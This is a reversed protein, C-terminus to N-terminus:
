TVSRYLEWVTSLGAGVRGCYLCIATITLLYWIRYIFNYTSRIIPSSVVRFLYLLKRSIFLSHLTADRFCILVFTSIVCPGRFSLRIHQSVGYGVLYIHCFGSFPKATIGFLMYSEKIFIKNKKFYVAEIRCKWHTLPIETHLLLTCNPKSKTKRYCQQVLVGNFQVCTTIRIPPTNSSTKM